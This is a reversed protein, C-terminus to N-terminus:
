PGPPLPPTLPASESLLRGSRGSRGEKVLEKGLGGPNPALRIAAPSEAALTDPDPPAPSPAELPATPQMPPHSSVPELTQATRAQRSSCSSAPHQFKMAEARPAEARYVVRPTTPRYDDVTAELVQDSLVVGRRRDTISDSEDSPREIKNAVYHPIIFISGRPSSQSMKRPRYNLPQFSGANDHSSEHSPRSDGSVPERKKVLPHSNVSLLQNLAREYRPPFRSVGNEPVSSASRRQAKMAPASDGDGDIYSRGRWTTHDVANASKREGNISRM